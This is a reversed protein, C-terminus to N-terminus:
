VPTKANEKTRFYLKSVILYPLYGCGLATARVKLSMCVKKDRLIHRLLPIVEKRIRRFLAMDKEGMVLRYSIDIIKMICRARAAPVAEPYHEQMYALQESAAIIGYFHKETIKAHTISDNRQRWYYIVRNGYAIRDSAGVIKYTTATDEYLQGKPYPYKEVLDRKYLKGWACISMKNYCIQTLAETPQMNFDEPQREKMVIPQGDWFLVREAMSVEAQYKEMLFVLYELYDPAVYDDSDIFTVYEGEAIKVGQNRAESLGANEQHIVKTNGHKHAYEDCMKGCSDPSGDDVLILEYDQFTQNSISDLCEQLYREVKYVPVIVSVKPM